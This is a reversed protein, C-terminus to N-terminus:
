GPQTEKKRVKIIFFALGGFGCLAWAIVAGSPLDFFASLILGVAYGLGGVIYGVLLPSRSQISCIAPVILSAFVLYIGVMQTSLTIAVAFIPYFGYHGLRHRAFFWLLILPIYLLFTNLVDTYEVWLIQGVLLEKLHEGGHTDSALLMISGTASMMFLIGILAEQIKATTNRVMYLLSAGAIASAVAIIQTEWHGHSDMHEGVGLQSALVLGFAAMQAIALDLFIIGRKLVEQGLPIHTTLVVCGALFAPFLINWQDFNM